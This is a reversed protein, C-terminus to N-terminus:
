RQRRGARSLRGLDHEIQDFFGEPWAELSGKANMRIPTPGDESREGFFYTLVDAHGVSVGEVVALRVGNLVHDSHTEVVVQVGFRALRALFRGMRSQGAPHLHAEPNEVIFLSGPRMRLGAVIIPLAYSFGFGTNGPRIESGFLGPERFRITSASLGPRWSATIEVPRIIESAWLEVQTRLTKVGRNVESDTEPHLVDRDVRTSEHAALVQATYEGRVGVGLDEVDGSTMALQDRPGLREANLYCFLRGSAGSLSAPLETDTTFPLNLSRKAPVDFRIGVEGDDCRLGLVIAPEEALPHLVEQAEGLALGHVDNLAVVGSRGIGAAQKALLLAQVFTSKGTGNLGTLLNLRGLPVSATLFRKLNTVEVLEIM